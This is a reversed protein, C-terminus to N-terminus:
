EGKVLISKLKKISRSYKSLVTPLPMDLLAAIERHRFGAVAHLIVIQRETDSLLEMCQRVIQRDETSLGNQGSAYREWEEPTSDASKQRERLKMLCLNRTITLMWALPKGMPRYQAAAGYLQIYCDHLIDQADQANKLISLAFGYVSASTRRYLEAIAASDKEAARAIYHELLTNQKENNEATISILM